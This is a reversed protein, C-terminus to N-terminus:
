AKRRRSAALGALALGALAWSAPEPVMSTQTLHLTGILRNDSDFNRGGMNFGFVDGANLGVFTYTGSYAFGNSPASCCNAPGTNVLTAAATTNLFATVGFFAHFGTYDWDFTYDGADTATARANWTQTSFGAPNANYSLTSDAGVTSASTVGPGTISWPVVDAHATFSAAAVAAAITVARLRAACVLQNM